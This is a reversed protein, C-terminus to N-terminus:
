KGEAASNLTVRKAEYRGGDFEAEIMVNSGEALKRAIDKNNGDVYLEYNKNDRPDVIVVLGRSLDLFTVRGSFAFTSGPLALISVASVVPLSEGGKRENGSVFSLSVLSGPQLDALTGAEDGHSIVAGAALHMRVARPSLTDRVTLERKGENFDIIQGSSQGVSVGTVRINRAFVDEGDLTTDVYARDGQELDDLTGKQEGKFVHTREDFLVTMKKGGFVDLILVDRVHDVSRIQGGILTTRGKPQPPLEPAAHPERNSMAVPNPSVTTENGSLDRALLASSAAVQAGACGAALLLSLLTSGIQLRKLRGGLVSECKGSPAM